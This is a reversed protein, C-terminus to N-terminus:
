LEPVPRGDPQAPRASRSALYDDIWRTTRRRCQSCATVYLPEKRGNVIRYPELFRVKRCNACIRWRPEYREEDMPM